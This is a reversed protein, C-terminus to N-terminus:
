LKRILSVVKGAIKAEGLPFPPYKTNDPVLLPGSPRFKLRKVTVDEAELRIEVVLVLIQVAILVPERRQEDVVDAAADDTSM